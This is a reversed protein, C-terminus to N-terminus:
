KGCVQIVLRHLVMRHDQATTVLARDAALCYELCKQLHSLTFRRAKQAAAFLGWANVEGDKKKPLLAKKQAPLRGLSGQFAKYNAASVSGDSTALKAFFLNRVTPIMAAKVLGVASENKSLQADILEIARGANRGELARSIEWIVGKHTLPVMTQVDEVTVERREPGLYLDLKELEGNIQRTEAGALQVFTALADGSLQLGKEKSVRTVMVAVEEEWGDRSVDIKDYSKMDANKQLWKYFARRKDLGTTSLLFIVGQPLGMKLTELINEVGAKAREAESTRDTGCFTAGKLWVVKDGGFFGMTQLGEVVQASISNAHEANDAQGEIVENAFEDGGEPKLEEFLALAEESVRGEDTGTVVYISM